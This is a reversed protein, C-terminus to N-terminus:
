GLLKKGNREALRDTIRRLKSATGRDRTPM